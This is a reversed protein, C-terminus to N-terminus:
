PVSSQTWKVSTNYVKCLHSTYSIQYKKAQMISMIEAGRGGGGKKWTLLPLRPTVSVCSPSLCLFFFNIIINKRSRERDHTEPM